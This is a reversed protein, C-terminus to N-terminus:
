QLEEESFVRENQPVDINQEDMLTHLVFLMEKIRDTTLDIKTRIDSQLPDTHRRLRYLQVRIAGLMGVLKFFVSIPIKVSNLM